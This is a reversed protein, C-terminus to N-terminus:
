PTPKGAALTSDNDIRALLTNVACDPPCTHSDHKHIPCDDKFPRCQEIATLALQGLEDRAKEATTLAAKLDAIEKNLLDYMLKTAKRKADDRIRGQELQQRLDATAQDIHAAITNTKLTEYEAKNKASVFERSLYNIQKIREAAAKAQPTPTISM